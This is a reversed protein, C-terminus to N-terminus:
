RHLGSLFDLANSYKKQIRYLEGVNGLNRAIGDKNGTEEAV